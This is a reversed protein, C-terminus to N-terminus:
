FIKKLVREFWNQNNKQNNKQSSNEDLYNKLVDMISKDVVKKSLKSTQSRKISSLVRKVVEEDVQHHALLMEFIEPDDIKDAFYYLYEFPTRPYSEGELNLNPHELIVRLIGKDGRELTLSLISDGFFVANIDAGTNGFFAWVTDANLKNKKNQLALAMPVWSIHANQFEISPHRCLLLVMQANGEDLAVWLPDGLRRRTYINPNEIHLNKIQGLLQKARNTDNDMIADRLESRLEEDTKKVLRNQTTTISPNALKAEIDSLEQTLIERRKQLALICEDDSKNAYRTKNKVLNPKEFSLDRSSTTKCSLNVQAILLIFFVHFKM